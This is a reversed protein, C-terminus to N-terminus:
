DMDPSIVLPLDIGVMGYKWNSFTISVKGTSQLGTKWYTVQGPFLQTAEVNESIGLFLSGTMTYAINIQNSENDMESILVIGQYLHDPKLVIEDVTVTGSPISEGFTFSSFVNDDESVLYLTGYGKEPLPTLNLNSVVPMPDPETCSPLLLAIATLLLAFFRFSFNTKM